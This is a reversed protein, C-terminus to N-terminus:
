KGKRFPTGLELELALEQFPTWSLTGRASWKQRSVAEGRALPGVERRALLNQLHSDKQIKQRLEEPDNLGFEFTAETLGVDKQYNERVKLISESPQLGKGGLKSFLPEQSATAIFWDARVFPFANRVIEKIQRVQDDLLGYPYDALVEDWAESQDWGLTRIDVRFVTGDGLREPPPAQPRFQRLLDALANRHQNLDETTFRQNNSLHELTFFRQFPRDQAPTNNLQSRILTLTEMRSKFPRPPDPIPPPPDQRTTVASTVVPNPNLLKQVWDWAQRFWDNRIGLVVGGIALLLGVVIVLWLSSGRAPPGWVDEEPSSPPGPSNVPAPPAPPTKQDQPPQSDSKGDDVKGNDKGGSVEAVTQPIAPPAPQPIAPPAAPSSPYLEARNRVRQRELDEKFALASPHREDVDVALNAHLLELFWRPVNSPPNALLPALDTVTEAARPVNGTALHYLTAALAFLDSRPEPRALRQEPPAYDESYVVTLRSRKQRGPLLRVERATGFDIMKISRGDDLLMVNDPKVDRHVRPPNQGHLVALVDCLTKAWEVVLAFDFPRNDNAEMVDLLNRGPIFELILHATREEEDQFFGYYRPVTPLRKENLLRLIEAERVFFNLRTKFEAPDPVIMEKIVVPQDQRKSDGALYIAGFGGTKIHKELRYRGLLLTGLSAPLPEDCRQCNRVGAPNATQCKPCILVSPESGTSDTPPSALHGCNPCFEMQEPISGRCAPCTTATM